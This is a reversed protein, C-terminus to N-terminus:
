KGKRIDSEISECFRRARRLGLLLGVNERYEELTEPSGGLIIEAIRNEEEVLRTALMKLSRTEFTDVSM